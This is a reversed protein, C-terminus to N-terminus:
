SMLFNPNLYQMQYQSTDAWSYDDDRYLSADTERADSIREFHHLKTHHGSEFDVALCAECLDLEDDQPCDQCRYRPGVIPDV